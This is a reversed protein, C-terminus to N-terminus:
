YWAYMEVVEKEWDTDELIETFKKLVEEVDSFYYEDYDTSGFFFGSTTPLLEQATSVKNELFVVKCRRILEEVQERDIEKYECNGDYNFFEMLFNVKRFYAIEKRPNSRELRSMTESYEKQLRDVEDLVDQSCYGELEKGDLRRNYEAYVSNVDLGKGKIFDNIEADLKELKAELKSRKTLDCNRRRKEFYIDLGM